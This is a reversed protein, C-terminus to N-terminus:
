PKLTAEKIKLVGWGTIAIYHSYRLIGGMYDGQSTKLELITVVKVCSKRNYTPLPGLYFCKGKFMNQRLQAKLYLSMYGKYMVCSWVVHRAALGWIWLLLEMKKEIIGNYVGLKVGVHGLGYIVGTDMEHEMKKEM